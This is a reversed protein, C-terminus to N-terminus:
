LPNIELSLKHVGKVKLKNMTSEFSFTYKGGKDLILLFEKLGFGSLFEVTNKLTKVDTLSGTYSQYYTPLSSEKCYVLGLNLQALKESDRNYGWEIFDNNESYSSISTIDYYITKIPNLYEIWNKLFMKIDVQSNGITTYLESIKSSSMKKSDQM